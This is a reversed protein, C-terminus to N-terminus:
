EEGAGEALRRTSQPPAVGAGKRRYERPSVGTEQRFVRAFHGSDPFGVAGAIDTVSRGTEELLRRAQRVRWRHLYDIPSM